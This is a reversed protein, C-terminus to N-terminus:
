QQVEAITRRLTRTALGLIGVVIVFAIDVLVFSNYGFAYALMEGVTSGLPLYHYFVYFGSLAHSVYRLVGAILAGVAFEAMMKGKLFKMKRSIGAVGIAGFAIPYDLLVQMPEFFQPSQIFQLMGYVVGAVLGKRTGFMYSYLVLPLLSAPTISGGQPLPFFKIFSLAYSLAICIAAYSISRTNENESKTDGFVALTVIGAVLLFTFLVMQWTSYPTFAGQREDDFWDVRAPVVSILVIAYVVFAIAFGLACWKYWKIQKNKLVLTVVIGIVLLAVLGIFMWYYSNIDGSWIQYSLELFGLIAIVGVAYGIIVGVITRRSKALQEEERNRIVIAYIIIAAAVIITAYLAFSELLTRITKFTTKDILEEGASLRKLIEWLSLDYLKM